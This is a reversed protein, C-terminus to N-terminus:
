NSDLSKLAKDICTAGRVASQEADRVAQGARGLAEFTGKQLLEIARITEQTAVSLSECAALLQDRSAQLHPLCDLDELENRISAVKQQFDRYKPVYKQSIVQGSSQIKAYPKDDADGPEGSAESSSSGAVIGVGGLSALFCRAASAAEATGLPRPQRFLSIESLEKELSLTTNVAEISVQELESALAAIGLTGAIDKFSLATIM